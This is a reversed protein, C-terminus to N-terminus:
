GEYSSAVRCAPDGLDDVFYQKGGSICSPISTGENEIRLRRRTRRRPASSTEAEKCSKQGHRSLAVLFGSNRSICDQM